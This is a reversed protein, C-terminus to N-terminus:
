AAQEVLSAPRPGGSRVGRLARPHRAHLVVLSSSRVVGLPGQRAFRSIGTARVTLAAKAQRYGVRMGAACIVLLGGIGPLAFAALAALSAPALVARVTNELFSLPGAPVTGGTALPATGSISLHASLGAATIGGLTAPATVDGLFPMGAFPSLPLFQPGAPSTASRLGTGAAASVRPSSGITAPVVTTAGMGAGVLLSYLDGPLQALPVLADNVSALM